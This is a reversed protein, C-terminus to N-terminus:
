CMAARQRMSNLQRYSTQPYLPKLCWRALGRLRGRCVFSSDTSTVLQVSLHVSLFVPLCVSLSLSDPYLPTGCSTDQLVAPINMLMIVSTHIGVDVSVRACM